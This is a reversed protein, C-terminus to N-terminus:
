TEARPSIALDKPRKRCRQDFFWVMSRGCDSGREQFARRFSIPPRAVIFKLSRPNSIREVFIQSPWAHAHKQIRHFFSQPALVRLVLGGWFVQADFVYHGLAPTAGAPRQRAIQTRVLAVACDVRDAVERQDVSPQVLMLRVPWPDVIVIWVSS